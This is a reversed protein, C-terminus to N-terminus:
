FKGGGYKNNDDNSHDYGGAHLDPEDHVDSKEAFQKGEAFMSQFELAANVSAFQARFTRHVTEEASYDIASWVCEKGDVKLQTEIAVVNDCLYQFAGDKEVVIRACLMEDDYLIKLNGTGLLIWSKDVASTGAELSSLTCRKEFMISEEVDEYEEEDVEEEEEEEEADGEEEEGKEEHVNEAAPNSEVTAVTPAPVVPEDSSSNQRLAEQCELIKSQFLSALEETKFRLAFQELVLEGQSFDMASWTWTTLSTSLPKLVMETTLWHNCALKHIQERRLLIRYTKKEKNNLIKMCGVGKEKWEKATSDFRYLKARQTFVIEEEEEGTTVQVLAPLPIIPEFHPDNSEPEEDDDEGNEEETTKSSQIVGGGFIPQGTGSWSFQSPKNFGSTSDTALASFSLQSVASDAMKFLDIPANKETKTAAPTKVSVIDDKDCGRCGPCPPANEYLFFNLPLKLEIAKRKQEETAEKLFLVEVDQDSTGSSKSLSKEVAKMFGEAIEVDRFRLVFTATTGEGESFDKAAWLWSRDDKRLFKIDSTLGHNLCIKFIQDRRMLLRVKGTATHRLIKIDGVGREKWEGDHLRLLKSRHYYLVEEDEEGTKVEIKDPLPIVPEFHIDANEEEEYYENENVSANPSQTKVATPAPTPSSFSFGGFGMGTSAQGGFIPASTASSSKPTFSFGKGSFSFASSATTPAATSAVSTTGPKATECSPCVSVKGDNRCLCGQCEWSGEKPQFLEALSKNNSMGALNFTFGTTPKEPGQKKEVVVKTNEEEPTIVPAKSFTLGGFHEL